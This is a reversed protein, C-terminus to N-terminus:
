IDRTRILKNGTISNAFSCSPTALLLIDRKESFGGSLSCVLPSNVEPVM